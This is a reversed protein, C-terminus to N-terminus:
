PIETYPTEFTKIDPAQQKGANRDMFKPIAHRTILFKMEYNHDINQSAAIWSGYKMLTTMCDLSSRMRWTKAVAAAVLESEPTTKDHLKMQELCRYNFDNLEATSGSLIYDQKEELMNFPAAKRKRECILQMTEFIQVRTTDTKSRFYYYLRENFQPPPAFFAWRQFLVSQFATEQKSFQIKIPNDPLNFFVNIFWYGVFLFLATISLLKNM